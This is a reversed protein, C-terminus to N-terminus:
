SSKAAAAASEEATQQLSRVSAFRSVCCVLSIFSCLNVRVRCVSARVVSIAGLDVVFEIVGVSCLGFASNAVCLKSLAERDFSEAFIGSTLLKEFL